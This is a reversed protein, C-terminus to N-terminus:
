RAGRPRPPKPLPADYTAAAIEGLAQGAVRNAADPESPVAVQNVYLAIALRRGDERRIFGALGRGTVVTAEAEGPRRRDHASRPPL